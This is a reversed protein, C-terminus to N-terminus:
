FGLGMRNKPLFWVLRVLQPNCQHVSLGLPWLEGQGDEKFVLERKEESENKGTGCLRRRPGCLESKPLVLPKSTGGAQACCGFYSNSSPRSSVEVGTREEREQEVACM